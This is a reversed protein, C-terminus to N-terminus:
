VCLSLSVVAVIQAFHQRKPCGRCKCFLLEIHKQFLLLQSMDQPFQDWCFTWNGETTKAKYVFCISFPLSLDVVIVCNTFCCPMVLDVQIFAGFSGSVSCFLCQPQRTPFASNKIVGSLKNM